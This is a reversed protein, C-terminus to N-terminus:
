DLAAKGDDNHRAPLSALRMASKAHIAPQRAEMAPASRRFADM